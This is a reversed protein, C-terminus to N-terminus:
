DSIMQVMVSNSYGPKIEIPNKMYNGLGLTPYNWENNIIMRVTNNIIQMRVADKEPSIAKIGANSDRIRACLYRIYERSARFDNTAPADTVIEVGTFQWDRTNQPWKGTKSNEPTRYAIGTPRGIHDSPYVTWLSKRNWEIRDIDGALEFYLGIESYGGIDTQNWPITKAHPAADPFDMITYKAIMLGNGDIRLEFKASIPSYIADIRVVAVNQEMRVSIEQCKYEAPDIGSREFQLHPGGTIVLKGGARGAIIQGKYKDFVLEFGKGKVIIEKYNEAIEPPPGSLEPVMFPVPNVPLDYEDVQLGDKRLFRLRLTDGHNWKKAPIEIIGDSHPPVVPGKIQGTEKGAQWLIILEDLSTHDFWNKVPIQMKVGPEPAELMLKEIRVPSYAKRMLWPEPMGRDLDAFIGFQDGGLAGPTIFMKEWFYRISEGWFNRVNPDRRIEEPSLITHAYEDHIVPMVPLPNREIILSPSHWISVGYDALENVKKTIDPYHFSYVDYPLEEDPRVRNAWSHM